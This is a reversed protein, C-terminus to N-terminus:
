QWHNLIIYENAIPVGAAELNRLARVIDKPSLNRSPDNDRRIVCMGAHRGGATLLLLHLQEFDRYNRSLLVRAERIAHTLQEPDDKGLHGVDGPVQVDHGANRLLHALTPSALDEDLYLKM